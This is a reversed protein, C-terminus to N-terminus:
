KNQNTTLKGSELDSLMKEITTKLVPIDTRITNFLAESDADIYEGKLVDGMGFVSKWQVQGYSSFVSETAIQKIRKFYNSLYILSMGCARFVTRGLLTETLDEPSSISVSIQDMFEIESLSHKLYAAVTQNNNSM